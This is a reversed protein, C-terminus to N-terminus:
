HLIFKEEEMLIDTSEWGKQDMLKIFARRFLLQVFIEFTESVESSQFIYSTKDSGMAPIRNDSVIRTPNWYAGSPTIETWLEMLIKAFGKGALGAYYGEDPKGIGGWEPVVSGEIQKLKEGNEDKVQVLLILHRLPSDTPVHHGTKDNIIEVEVFVKDEARHSEVNMTVANQLLNEDDAGPMKHSFITSSDREVGGAETTAFKTAGLPPMHCDQCTQETEPNSYPSELWEGFSNYIPTGWFESYHCPACFESATQIPSYTDEGPAVDDLPGAFFQYGDPPRRFIYSLVGPMNDYPLGSAPDLRVDWIKHCFDCSVGEKHIGDLTTPNVGYPDNVSALPTHCAACNGNTEPFDLKYGPGYYSSSNDPRLPFSGYERNYGYRTPPSRNGEIDTGNYMTIFRPNLASQSHADRLWEDFPLTFSFETNASSHCKACGQDENQVSQSTSSLWAYNPNDFDAHAELHIKIEEESSADVGNIYYGSSWATVYIPLDNANLKALTFYGEKNTLTYTETAQIRVLAGVIPGNDDTVKGSIKGINNASALSVLTSFILFCHLSKLKERLKMM